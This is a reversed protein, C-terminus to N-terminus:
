AEVEKDMLAFVRWEIGYAEFYFYAEIDDPYKESWNPNYTITAQMVDAVHEFLSSSLHIKNKNEVGCFIGGLTDYLEESAAEAKRMSIIAGAYDTLWETLFAREEARDITAETIKEM